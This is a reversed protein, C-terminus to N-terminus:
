VIFAQLYWDLMQKGFLLAVVIGVSLYPGFALVRNLHSIKMRIPHIIAALICGIFFALIILEWGLVLGAAAM